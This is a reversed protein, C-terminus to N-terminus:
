FILVCPLFVYLYKENKLAYYVFFVQVGALLAFYFVFHVDMSRMTKSVLLFLPEYSVTKRILFEYQRLYALHDVGVNWRIGCLLAFFLLLLVMEPLLFRSKQEHYIAFREKLYIRRGLRSM